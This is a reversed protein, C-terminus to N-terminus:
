RKSSLSYLEKLLMLATDESEWYCAHSALAFIYENFFEIPAEQLVYDIRRGSNLQGITLNETADPAELEDSRQENNTDQENNEQAEAISPFSRRQRRAFDNISNWTSKFSEFVKHKLGSGVKYLNEKLELHMRKRGKHHPILVPKVNSFSSNILPEIRYAIPDFPHFINFMHPCTPLKFDEKLTEVGRVTLFMAIPSGLAFFCQPNFDLQPYQIFPHGTGPSGFNYSISNISSKRANCEPPIQKENKVNEFYERIAKIAISPIGLEEFEADSFTSLLPLNINRKQFNDLYSSLNLFHLLSKLDKVEEDHVKKIVSNTTTQHALIDFLILSGLSHGVVAISGNFYSNRTKFLKYLRNMESAVADIITQCYVPSTYFLADLITDNSFNRLKPISQLTILKLRDDIGTADGHLATHWSVPLYEVRGMKNTSIEDKFHIKALSLSISRFDDVVETLGRFKFDCVSGVGHVLFVLHDVKDSEEQDIDFDQVGRRVHRRKFHSDSVDNWEDFSCLEVHYHIGSNPGNFIFFQSQDGFDVKQHWKNSLSVEKYTEELYDAFDETYPTFNSQNEYRYFWLCRRVPLPTECWYVSKRIRENVYVDYRGGNTSVVNFETFKNKAFVEEIRNSNKSIESQIKFTTLSCNRNEKITDILHQNSHLFLLLPLNATLTENRYNSYNYNIEYNLHLALSFNEGFEYANTRVSQSHQALLMLSSYANATIAATRSIIKQEWTRVCGEEDTIKRIDEFDFQWNKCEFASTITSKIPHLIENHGIFELNYFAEQLILESIPQYAFSRHKCAWLLLELTEALIYQKPLIAPGQRLSWNLTPCSEAIGAAKALLLGVIGRNEQLETFNKLFYFNNLPLLSRRRLLSDLSFHDWSYGIVKEAFKIASKM